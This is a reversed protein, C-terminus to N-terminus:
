RLPKCSCSHLVVAVILANAVTTEAKIDVMRKASIDKFNSMIKNLDMM